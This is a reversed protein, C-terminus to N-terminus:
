TLIFWSSSPLHLVATLAMPDIVLTPPDWFDSNKEKSGDQHWDAYHAVLDPVGSDIPLLPGQM